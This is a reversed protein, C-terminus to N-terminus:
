DVQSNGCNQLFDTYYFIALEKDRDIKDFIELHNM